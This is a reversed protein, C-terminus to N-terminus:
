VTDYQPDEALKNRRSRMTDVVRGCSTGTVERITGAGIASAVIARGGVGGGAGGAYDLNIGDILTKVANAARLADAPIARGDTGVAQFGAMLPFYMRGKSAKGREVATRLTVVTALQSPAAYPSGAGSIPTPYTKEMTVSDQYHGGSDIRNLKIGTLKNINLLSPDVSTGSRPWWAAVSAAVADLLAQSVAPMPTGTVTGFHLSTAFTESYITGLIVLRHISQPYGM